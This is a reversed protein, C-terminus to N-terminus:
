IYICLYKVFIYSKHTLRYPRTFLMIYIHVMHLCYVGSKLGMYAASYLKGMSKYIIIYLLIYNYIHVALTKEVVLCNCCKM